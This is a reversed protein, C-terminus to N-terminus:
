GTGGNNESKRKKKKEDNQNRTENQHALLQRSEGAEGSNKKEASTWCVPKQTGGRADKIKEIRASKRPPTKEGKASTFL